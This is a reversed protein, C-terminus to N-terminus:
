KRMLKAPIWNLSKGLESTPPHYNSEGNPLRNSNRVSPRMLLTM